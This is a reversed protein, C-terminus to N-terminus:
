TRGNRERVYLRCIKCREGPYDAVLESKTNCCVENYLWACENTNKIIEKLKGNETHLLRSM